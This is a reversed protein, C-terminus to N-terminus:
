IIKKHKILAYMVLWYGAYWLMNVPHLLDYTDTLELNYYWTDGVTNFLIGITLLIWAKGIAGEKFIITGVVAFSLTLSSFYVFVSGYLFDFELLNDVNEMEFLMSYTLLVGIPMVMIWIKAFKNIKPTFFKINLILHVLLLPYQIFFFVDAISPYPEIDYVVDYIMYTVEGLFIGLYAIALALYSKGFIWSSRYRIAIIFGIASVILPNLISFISVITDTNDETTVYNIFVHFVIVLAVIGAIIKYSLPSKIKDPVIDPESM